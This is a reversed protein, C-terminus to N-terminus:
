YDRGMEHRHSVERARPVPEYELEQRSFISDDKYHEILVQLMDNYSKDNFSMRGVLTIRNKIKMTNIELRKYHDSLVSLERLNAEQSAKKNRMKMYNYMEEDTNTRIMREIQGKSLDSSFHTQVLERMRLETSVQMSLLNKAQYKNFTDIFEQSKPERSEDEVVSEAVEHKVSISKKADYLKVVDENYVGSSVAGESAKLIEEAANSEWMMGTPDSLLIVKGVGYGYHSTYQQKIDQTIFRGTTHNLYRAELYSTNHETSKDLFMGANSICPTLLLLTLVNMGKNLFVM